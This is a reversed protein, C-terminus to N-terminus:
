LLFWSSGDITGSRNSTDGFHRFMGSDCEEDGADRSEAISSRDLEVVIL